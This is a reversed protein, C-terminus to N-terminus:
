VFCVDPFTPFVMMYALVLFDIPRVLRFKQLATQLTQPILNPCCIGCPLNLTCDQRSGGHIPLMSPCTLSSVRHPISSHYSMKSSVDKFYIKMLCQEQFVVCNKKLGTAKSIRSYGPLTLKSNTYHQSDSKSSELPTQSM